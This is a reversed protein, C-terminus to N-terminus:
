KQSRRRAWYPNVEAYRDLYRAAEDNRGLMKLSTATMYLLPGEELFRHPLRYADSLYQLAKQADGELLRQNAAEILYAFEDGRVSIARDFFEASRRPEMDMTLMALGFLAQSNEPDLDLARELLLAATGKDGRFAIEFGKQAVYDPNLPDAMLADEIWGLSSPIMLYLYNRSKRYLQEARLDVYGNAGTVHPLNTNENLLSINLDTTDTYLSLPAVFELLPTDDTNLRAGQSFAKARDSGMAFYSLFDLPDRINMYARLESGVKGTLRSAIAGYNFESFSEQSAIILIDGNSCFWVTMERFMSGLTRIIMRLSDPGLSYLQAWQVFLGGEKLRRASAEYFERTYLSGIGRIWPNSPEAIIIDYKRGPAAIYSRADDVIYNIDPDLHVNGNVKAFYQAAELVAPEIEVCDIHEIGRGHLGSTRSDRLARVTVGSGFGIVLADKPRPHLLYPFYGTALMTSMDVGTSADIKGNISLTTIGDSKARVAVTSTIGERFFLHLSDKGRDRGYIAIGSDLAGAPIDSTIFPLALLLLSVVAMRPKKLVALGAAGLAINIVSASKVSLTSGLGPVLFFAAIVSGVICGVTNAAYINGINTGRREQGKSYVGTIVPFTAGMLATPVLVYLLVILFELVLIRNYSIGSITDTLSFGQLMLSPLQGFFWVTSLGTIGILIQLASFHGLGLRRKRSIRSVVVSGLAIGILFGMLILSFSYTASGIVAVLLRTWAVEYAMAALGSLAFAIIAYRYGPPAPEDRDSGARPMVGKPAKIGLGFCVVGILANLAAAAKLTADLGFSRILFFGVLFTGLVGGITNLSYLTGLRSELEGDSRIFYRSLVPLTGGMLTTPVVLVSFTLLFKLGISSWRPLESAFASIYFSSVAGLLVPSLLAFLAIGLELVGYGKLLNKGSDSWRGLLFSGLSLGTMFAALVAGLAYTTNGFALALMRVWVVEYVLATAGSLLFCISLISSGYM